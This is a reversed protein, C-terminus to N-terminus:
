LFHPVYRTRSAAGNDPTAPPSKQRSRDTTRGSSKTTSAVTRRTSRRTSRSGIEEDDDYLKAPDTWGLRSRQQGLMQQYLSSAVDHVKDLVKIDRETNSDDQVAMSALEPFASRGQGEIQAIM